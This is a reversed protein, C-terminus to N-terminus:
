VYIWLACYTRVVYVRIKCWHRYICQLTCRVFVNCGPLVPFKMWLQSVQSLQSLKRSHFVQLSASQSDKQWVILQLLCGPKQGTIICFISWWGGGDERLTSIIGITTFTSTVVLTALGCICCVWDVCVACRNMVDMRCTCFIWFSAILLM